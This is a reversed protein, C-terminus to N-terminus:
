MVDMRVHFGGYTFNMAHQLWTPMETEHLRVTARQRIYHSADPITEIAEKRIVLRRNIDFRQLLVKTISKLEFLHPM